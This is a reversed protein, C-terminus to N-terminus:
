SQVAAHHCGLCFSFSETHQMCTSASDNRPTRLVNTHSGLRMCGPIRMRIRILLLPPTRSCRLSLHSSRIASPASKTSSCRSPCTRCRVTATAQRRRCRSARGSHRQAHSSWNRANVIHRASSVHGLLSAAVALPSAGAPPSTRVALPAVLTTAAAAAALPRTLSARVACGFRSWLM